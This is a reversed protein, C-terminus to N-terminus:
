AAIGEAPVHLLFQALGEPAIVYTIKEDALISVGKFGQQEGVIDGFSKVVLDTQAEIQDVLLAFTLDQVKIFVASSKKVVQATESIKSNVIEQFNLLPVTQGHFQCYRLGDVETLLIEDGTSVHAISALPIAFQMERWTCLLATEVLIHQPVPIDFRFTTGAGVESEILIKGGYQEVTSQVIDM